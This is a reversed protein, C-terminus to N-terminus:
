VVCFSKVKTSSEDAYWEYKVGCDLLKDDSYQFTRVVNKLGFKTPDCSYRYILDDNDVTYKVTDKVICGQLNCFMNTVFYFCHNKVDFVLVLVGDLNIVVKRSKKLFFLRSFETRQVKRIKIHEKLKMFAEIDNRMCEILRKNKQITMTKVCITVVHIDHLFEFLHTEGPFFSRHFSVDRELLRYFIYLMGDDCIPFYIDIVYNAPNYQKSLNVTQTDFVKLRENDKVNELMSLCFKINKEGYLHSVVFLNKNDSCIHSLFNIQLKIEISKGTILHYQLLCFRDSTNRKIIVNGAFYHLFGCFIFKNLEIEHDLGNTKLKFTNKGFKTVSNYELLYLGKISPRGNELFKSVVEKFKNCLLPYKEMLSLQHDLTKVNLNYVFHDLCMKSLCDMQLYDSIQLIESANSSTINILDTMVYVSVQIFSKLNVPITVETFESKHDAFCSKTISKFYPSKELLKQKNVVLVHKKNLRVKLTEDETTPSAKHTTTIETMLNSYKESEDSNQM